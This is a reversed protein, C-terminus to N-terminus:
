IKLGVLSRPLHKGAHLAVLDTLADPDLTASVVVLERGTVVTLCVQSFDTGDTPVYILVNQSKEVVGVLRTWGRDRMTRDTENFLTARSWTASRDTPQYVGVSVAKVTQLAARAEGIQHHSDPVFALCQRLAWFSVRGLSLQVKTNWGTQTAAMVERRLVTADRHLTLVSAALAAVFVVPTVLIALIWPWLRRRRVPAPASNM